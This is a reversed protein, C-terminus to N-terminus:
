KVEEKVEKPIFDNIKRSRFVLDMNTILSNTIVQLDNITIDEEQALKLFKDGIIDLAKARKEAEEQAKSSLQSQQKRNLFSM